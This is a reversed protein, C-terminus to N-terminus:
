LSIEKELLRSSNLTRHLAKNVSGEKVLVTGEMLNGDFLLCVIDRFLRFPM